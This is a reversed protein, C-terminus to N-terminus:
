AKILALYTSNFSLLMMDIHFSIQEFVVVAVVVVFVVAVVCNSANCTKRYIRDMIKGTSKRKVSYFCGNAM